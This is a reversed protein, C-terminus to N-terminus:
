LTNNHVSKQSGQVGTFKLQLLLDAGSLFSGKKASCIVVVDIERALAKQRAHQVVRALQFVLPRDIINQSHGLKDLCIVFMNIIGNSEIAQVVECHVAPVQNSSDQSDRDGMMVSSPFHGLHANKPSHPMRLHALEISVGRM